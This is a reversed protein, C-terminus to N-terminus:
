IGNVFTLVVLGIAKYSTARLCKKESQVIEKSNGSLRKIESSKNRALIRM